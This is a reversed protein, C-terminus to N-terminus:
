KALPALIFFGAPTDAKVPVDNTSVPKWEPEDLSEAKCIVVSLTAEQTAPDVAIASFGSAKLAAVALGNLETLALGNVNKLDPLTEVIENLETVGEDKVLKTIGDAEETWPMSTVSGTGKIYLTGGKVYATANEGVVWPNEESGPPIDYVPRM